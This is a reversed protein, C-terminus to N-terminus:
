GRCPRPSLSTPSPPWRATPRGPGPRRAPARVGRRVPPQRRGAGAAPGPGRRAADGQGGPRGGAAGGRPRAAGGAPDPDRGPHRRGLGPATGAARSPGHGRDATAPRHVARGPAPPVRADGPRGLAPGRGGAGAPPRHGHGGRVPALRRVARGARGQGRGPRRDRAAPGAPGAAVRAGAPRPPPHGPGGPAQGGGRGTPRVRPHRGPGQRDRGAGLLHDRRWLAPLPGPALHGAGAPRRRLRGARQRLPVQRGGAGRRGHGAARHPRGPDARVARGLLDLEAKRGVFPTGARRVAEIGTRSRAGLLRWVPVPDAKGKVRM